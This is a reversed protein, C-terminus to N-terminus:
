TNSIQIDHSKLFDAYDCFLSISNAADRFSLFYLQRQKRLLKGVKKFRKALDFSDAIWPL